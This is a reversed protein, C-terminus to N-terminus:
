PTREARPHSVAGSAAWDPPTRGTWKPPRGNAADLRWKAILYGRYSDPVPRDAFDLGLAANRASNQFSAPAAGAPAGRRELGDRFAPAHAECAHRRKFRETYEACLARFHDHTWAANEAEAAVWLTVPHRAHTPRYPGGLITSLLQATELVAKVLRRDDLARASLVPCTDTIFLNVTSATDPQLPAPM